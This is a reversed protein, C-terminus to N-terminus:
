RNYRSYRFRVQELEHAKKSEVAKIGREIKYIENSIQQIKAKLDEAKQKLEQQQRVTIDLSKLQSEVCALEEQLQKLEGNKMEVQQQVLATLEKAYQKEIESEKALKENLGNDFFELHGCNRCAYVKLSESNYMLADSSVDILSKLRIPILNECDCQTCKM